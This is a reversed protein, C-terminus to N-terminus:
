NREPGIIKYDKSVYGNDPSGRFHAPIYFKGDYKGFLPRDKTYTAYHARVAHYPRMTEEDNLDIYVNESAKLDNPKVVVTHHKWGFQPPRMRKKAQRILRPRVIEDTEAVAGGQGLVQMAALGACVGSLSEDALAQAYAVNALPCMYADRLTNGRKDIGILSFSAPIIVTQSKVGVLSFCTLVHDASLSVREWWKKVNIDCDANIGGIFDDCSWRQFVVCGHNGPPSDAYEYDMVFNDFPACVNRYTAAGGKKDIEDAFCDVNIIPGRCFAEYINKICNVSEPHLVKVSADMGGSM